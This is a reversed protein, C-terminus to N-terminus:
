RKREICPMTTAQPVRSMHPAANRQLAMTDHPWSFQHLASALAGEHKELAIGGRRRHPVHHQHEPTKNTSRIHLCFSFPLLAAAPVLLWIQSHPKKITYIERPLDKKRKRKNQTKINSTRRESACSFLPAGIANKKQKGNTTIPPPGQAHSAETARYM